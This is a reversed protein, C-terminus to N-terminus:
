LADTVHSWGRSKILLTVKKEFRETDRLELLAGLIHELEFGRMAKV